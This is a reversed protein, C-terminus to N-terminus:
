GHLLAQAKRSAHFGISDSDQLVVLSVPMADGLDRQEWVLTVLLSMCGM